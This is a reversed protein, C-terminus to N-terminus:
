LMMMAIKTKHHIQLKSNSKQIANQRLISTTWTSDPIMADDIEFKFNWFIPLCSSFYSRPVGSRESKGAVVISSFTHIFFSPSTRFFAECSLMFAGSTV